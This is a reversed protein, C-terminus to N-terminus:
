NVAATDCWDRWLGQYINELERAVRAPDAFPAATFKNRLDARVRALAPLDNACRSAIKVYEDTSQAIFEPLGISHMIMVGCRGLANDGALTIVPVGMWLSHFTTTGGNCPFPDLTLDCEQLCAFFGALNQRGRISIRGPDIGGQAFFDLLPGCVATQEGHELVMILRSGAIETLLRRWLTLVGDNLKRRTNLSGFTLTPINAGPRLGPLPNLAPASREPAFCVCSADLRALAETQVGETMGPPDLMADSIRYGVQALGTSGLYGMYTAQVPAPQLVFVGLRNGVTHGSLDVLLDIGDAEIAAAACNDDMHSIDQWVPVLSRLRRSVEDQDPWNYYCHIKVRAADHQAFLAELFYASSHGRFDASVYGINLVKDTDRLNGHARPAAPVPYRRVWQKRAELAAGPAAGPSQDLLCILSNHAAEFDPAVLIAARYLREAQEHEGLEDRLLALNYIPEVRGPALQMAATGTAIAGSVDGVAKLLVSLNTQLSFDDPTHVIARKLYTVALDNQRHELALQAAERVAQPPADHEHALCLQQYAALADQWKGEGELARATALLRGPSSPTRWLSKLLAAFM